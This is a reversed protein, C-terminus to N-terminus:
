GGSSSSLQDSVNSAVLVVAVIHHSPYQKPLWEGSDGCFHDGEGYGRHHHVYVGVTIGYDM